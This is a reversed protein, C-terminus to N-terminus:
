SSVMMGWFHTWDSSGYISGGGFSGFQVWATDNADMDYLEIQGLAIYGDGWSTGEQYETRGPNGGYFFRNSCRLQIDFQDGTSAGTILVSTGFLYKGTIPATFYGTTTNYNNGVDFVESNFKLPSANAVTSSRRVLFNASKPPVIGRIYAPSVLPEVHDSDILSLTAASDLGGGADSNDERIQVYNSDIILTVDGSDLGVNEDSQSLRVNTDNNAETRGLILAIDRNRSM